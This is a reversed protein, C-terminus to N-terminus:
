THVFEHMAAMTCKEIDFEPVVPSASAQVCFIGAIENNVVKLNAFFDTEANISDCNVTIHPRGGAKADPSDVSQFIFFIAGIEEDFPTEGTPEYEDQIKWLIEALLESARNTDASSNEDIYWSSVRPGWLDLYDQELVVCSDCGGTRYEAASLQAVWSDAVPNNEDLVHGPRLLIGSNPGLELKGQSHSNIYEIMRDVAVQHEDLTVVLGSSDDPFAVFIFKATITEGNPNYPYEPSGNPSFEPDGEIFHTEATSWFLLSFFLTLVISFLATRM